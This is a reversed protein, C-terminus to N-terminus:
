RFYLAFMFIMTVISINKDNYASSISFLTPQPTPPAQTPYNSDCYTIEDYNYGHQECTGNLFLADPDNTGTGTCGRKNYVRGIMATDNCEYQIFEGPARKVCDGTITPISVFTDYEKTCLYSSYRRLVAYSCDIGECEVSDGVDYFEEEDWGTLDNNDGCTSTNFWRRLVKHKTANCTLTSMGAGGEADSYYPLCVDLPFLAVDDYFGDSYIAKCSRDASIILFQQFAFITFLTFTIM